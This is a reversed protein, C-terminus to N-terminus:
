IRSRKSGWALAILGSVFGSITSIGGIITAGLLCNVISIGQPHGIWPNGGPSRSAVSDVVAAVIAGLFSGILISSGWAILFSTCLSRHRIGLYAGVLPSILIAFPILIQAFQQDM